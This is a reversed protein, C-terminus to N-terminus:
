ILGEEKLAKQVGPRAAVRGLYAQVHPYDALSMKLFNTWNLVVFAYADAVTFTSGTLYDQQAFRENLEAFRKNLTATVTNRTSEHTDPRWLLGFNRHLETSVFALWETVVLRQRADAPLLQRAAEQEGLYQLLAPCETHRTGDDFELVPVYGRPNIAYFDEGSDALQHKGLDVKVLTIALNAECAAIHPALSCAGPAYYLKM